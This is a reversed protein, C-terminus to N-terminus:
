RHEYGRAILRDAEAGAADGLNQKAFARARYVYPADPIFAVAQDFDAIAKQHEGKAEYIQGRAFYADLSPSAAISKAFEQLAKDGHGQQGFISGRVVYAHALSPDLELARDLDALAATDESLYHHCIGRELYANAMEPWIQIAQNLADIAKRYNGPGTLTLAYDYEKQARQPAAAIYSYIGWGAGAVVIVGATIFILRRQKRQQASVPKRTGPAPPPAKISSWLRTLASAPM